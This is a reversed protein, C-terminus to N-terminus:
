LNMSMVRIYPLLIINTYLLISARTYIGPLQIKDKRNPASDGILGFINFMWLYAERAPATDPVCAWQLQEEDTIGLPELNKRAEDINNYREQLAGKEIIKKQLLLPPVTAFGAV